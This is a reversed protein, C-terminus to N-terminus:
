AEEVTEIHSVEMIPNALLKDVMEKLRAKDARSVTLIFVKGQRVNEVEGFGLSHLGGLVAKGQPDLVQEKPMVTVKVKM